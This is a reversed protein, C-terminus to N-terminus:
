NTILLYLHKSPYPQFYINGFDRLSAHFLDYFAMGKFGKPFLM